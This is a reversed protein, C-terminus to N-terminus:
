FYDNREGIKLGNQFHRIYINEFVSGYVVKHGDRVSIIFMGNEYFTDTGDSLYLNSMKSQQFGLVEICCKTDELSIGQIHSSCFDIEKFIFGDITLKKVAYRSSSNSIRNGFVLRKYNSNYNLANQIADTDDTIGDGKAGFWSVNVEGSQIICWWIGDQGQEGSGDDTSKAIRLHHAGDGKTYFGLVQVVDGLTYGRSAKLDAITDVSGKSKGIEQLAGNADKFLMTNNDTAIVPEYTNLKDKALEIESRTGNALSIKDYGTERIDIQKNM